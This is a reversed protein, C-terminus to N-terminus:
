RDETRNFPNRTKKINAKDEGIRYAHWGRPFTSDGEGVRFLYRVCDLDRRAREVFSSGEGDRLEAAASESIHHDTRCRPEGYAHLRGRGRVLQRQSLEFRPQVAAGLARAIVQKLLPEAFKHPSDLRGPFRDRKQTTSTIRGAM